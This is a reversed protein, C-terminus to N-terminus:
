VCNEMVNYVTGSAENAFAIQSQGQCYVTMGDTIVVQIIEDFKRMDAAYIVVIGKEPVLTSRPRIQIKEDEDDSLRVRASLPAYISVDKGEVLISTTEPVFIPVDSQCIVRTFCKATACLLPKWCYFIQFAFKNGDHEEDHPIYYIDVPGCSCVKYTRHTQLPRELEAHSM